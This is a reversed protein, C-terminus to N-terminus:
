LSSADAFVLSPPAKKTASSKKFPNHRRSYVSPKGISKRKPELQQIQNGSFEPFVDHPHKLCSCTCCFNEGGKAGTQPFVGSVPVLASPPPFTVLTGVSLPTASLCKVQRHGVSITAKFSREKGKGNRQAEERGKGKVCTPCCSRFPIHTGNHDEREKMTPDGADRAVKLPANEQPDSSISPEGPPGAEPTMDEQDEVGEERM